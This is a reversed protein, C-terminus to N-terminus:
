RRPRQGCVQGPRRYLAHECTESMSSSLIDPGAAAALGYRATFARATTRSFRAKRATSAKGLGRERGHRM